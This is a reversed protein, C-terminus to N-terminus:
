MYELKQLADIDEHTTAANIATVRAEYVDQAAAVVAPDYQTSPFEDIEKRMEIRVVNEYTAAAQGILTGKREDVTLDHVGYIIQIPDTTIDFTHNAYAQRNAVLDPRVEVASSWGAEGEPPTTDWVQKVEGNKVQVYLSM